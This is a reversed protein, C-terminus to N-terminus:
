IIQIAEKLATAQNLSEGIDTASPIGQVPITANNSKDCRFNQHTYIIKTICGWSQDYYFIISFIQLKYNKILIILKLLVGKM